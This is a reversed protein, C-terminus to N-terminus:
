WWSTSATTSSTTGFTLRSVGYLPDTGIAGIAVGIFLSM